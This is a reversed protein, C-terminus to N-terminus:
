IQAMPASPPCDRMITMREYSAQVEGGFIDLLLDTNGAAGGAKFGPNSPTSNAM